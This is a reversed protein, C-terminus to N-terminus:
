FNLDELKPASASSSELAAKLEATTQSIENIELDSLDAKPDKPLGEETFTEKYAELVKSVKKLEKGSKKINKIDSASLAWGAVVGAAGGKLAGKWGGSLAGAAAGLLAGGGMKGIVQGILKQRQKVVYAATDADWYAGKDDQVLYRCKVTGDDNTLNNGSEDKLVVKVIQFGPVPSLLEKKVAASDIPQKSDNTQTIGAEASINKASNTVDAQATVTCAALMVCAAMLKKFSNKM